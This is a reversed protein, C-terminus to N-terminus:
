DLQDFELKSVYCVPCRWSDPLQEFKTGPAAGQGPDGRAPDYVYGCSVCVWRGAAGLSNTKHDSPTM